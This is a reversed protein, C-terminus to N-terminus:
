SSCAIVGAWGHGPLFVGPQIQWACCTQGKVRLGLQQPAPSQGAVDRREDCLGVEVKAAVRRIATM